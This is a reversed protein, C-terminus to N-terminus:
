KQLAQAWPNVKKCTTPFNLLILYTFRIKQNASVYHHLYMELLANIWKTQEDTQSHFSTSFNLETGMIKFLEMWFRRTFRPDRDSVITRPLSYYEVVSQFFAKAADEVNFSIPMPIFIAYKSFMDVVVMINGYGEVKSLGIIFDMSISEWPRGPIPLPELLGMLNRQEGKDQQCVLCTKVYHEIDDWMRSWYYAREALAQM